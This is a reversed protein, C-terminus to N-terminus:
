IEINFDDGPSSTDVPEVDVSDVVVSYNDGHTETEIVTQSAKINKSKDFQENFKDLYKNQAADIIKSVLNDPLLKYPEFCFVDMNGYSTSQSTVSAKILYRRPNVVVQEFTPNNSLPPLNKCKESIKQVLEYACHCKTGKCRFYILANEGAKANTDPIDREYKKIENKVSDWLYGAIIYESKAGKPKSLNDDWGFDVPKPYTQGDKTKEEKYMVWYKKIYMPLFYVNEENLILFEGDGNDGFTLSCQYYGQNMKGRRRGCISVPFFTPPIMERNATISVAQLGAYNNADILAM